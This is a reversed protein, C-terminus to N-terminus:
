YTPARRTHGAQVKFTTPGHEVGDRANGSIVTPLRATSPVNTTSIREEAVFPFRRQRCYVGPLRKADVRPDAPHLPHCSRTGLGAASDIHTQDRSHKSNFDWSALIISCARCLM